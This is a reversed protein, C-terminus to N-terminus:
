RRAPFPLFVAQQCPPMVWSAEKPHTYRDCIQWIIQQGHSSFPEVFRIPLHLFYDVEQGKLLLTQHKPWVRDCSTTEVSNAVTRYQPLQQALVM